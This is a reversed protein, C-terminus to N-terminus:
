RFRPSYNDHTRISLFDEAYSKLSENKKLKRLGKAEIQRIRERTVGFIQGVQELTRSTGDYLGYRLALVDVERQNLDRNSLKGSKITLAKKMEDKLLNRMVIDELSMKEDAVFDGITADEEEGVKLDLSLMDQAILANDDLKKIVEYIRIEEDDSISDPNLELYEIAVERPSPMTAKEAYLKRVIANIKNYFEVLHVPMRITKGSDAIGRTIAQKIWWTSYTSFRYGTNVDFKEVARILGMNGEQIMDLLTLGRGAYRKAISVVLRYNSNICKDFAIQEEKTLYQRLGNSKDLSDDESIEKIHKSFVKFLEQEEEYSLLPYTSIEQLYQNLIDESFMDDSYEESIAINNKELYISYLENVSDVKSFNDIEEQSVVTRGNVVKKFFDDIREENLVKIYEDYTLVQGILYKEIVKLMEKNVM